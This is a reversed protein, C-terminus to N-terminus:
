ASNAFVRRMRVWLDHIALFFVFHLLDEVRTNSPSADLVLDAPVAVTGLVVGPL